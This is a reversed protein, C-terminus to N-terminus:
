TRTRGMSITFNFDIMNSRIEIYCNLKREIWKCLYWQDIFFSKRDKRSKQKCIGNFIVKRKALTFMKLLLKKILNINQGYNFNFIGSAVIYDYKKKKLKLVDSQTFECAPFRIRAEKILRQCVDIGFYKGDFGTGKLFQLFEANGCGVDLISGSQNGIFTKIEAFRLYQRTIDHYGVRSSYSANSKLAEYKKENKLLQKKNM